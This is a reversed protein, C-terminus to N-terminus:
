SGDGPCRWRARKLPTVDRVGGRRGLVPRVGTPDMRRAAGPAARGPARVPYLGDQQLRPPPRRRRPPFPRLGARPLRPPGNEGEGTGGAVTPGAGRVADAVPDYLRRPHARELGRPGGDVHSAPRKRPRRHNTAVRPAGGPPAASGHARCSGRRRGRPLQPQQALARGSRRGRPRRRPASALDATAPARRGTQPLAHLPDDRRTHRGPRGSRRPRRVPRLDPCEPRPGPRSGQTRPPQRSLICCAPDAGPTSASRTSHGGDSDADRAVDLASMAIELWGPRSVLLHTGTKVPDMGVRVPRRRRAPAAPTVRDTM